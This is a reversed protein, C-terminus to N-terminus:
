PARIPRPRQKSGVIWTQLRDLSVQMVVSRDSICDGASIPRDVRDAKIDLASAFSKNGDVNARRLPDGILRAPGAHPAESM